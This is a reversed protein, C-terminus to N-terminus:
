LIKGIGNIKECVLILYNNSLDNIKIHIINKRPMSPARTSAM